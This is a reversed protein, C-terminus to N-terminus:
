VTGYKEKAKKKYEEFKWPNDMWIKLFYLAKVEFTPNEVDYKEIGSDPKQYAPSFAGSFGAMDYHRGNPYRNNMENMIDRTTLPIDADKLIGVIKESLTLKGNRKIPKAIEKHGKETFLNIKQVGIAQLVKEWKANEQQLKKIKEKNEEICSMALNIVEQEKSM